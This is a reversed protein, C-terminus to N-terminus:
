EATIDKIINIFISEIEEEDGGKYNEIFKNHIELLYIGYDRIFETFSKENYTLQYIMNKVINQREIDPYKLRMDLYFYCWTTCFGGPDFEKAMNEKVELSQFSYTPCFDLPEYYQKIFDKGMKINFFELIKDDMKAYYSIGGHPEFREMTKFKTDYIVTNAHRDLKGDPDYNKIDLYIYIFRPNKELCQKIGIVGGTLEETKVDYTLGLQYIDIKKMEEKFGKKGVRNYVNKAFKIVNVNLGSCHDKYKHTLYIITTLYVLRSNVNKFKESYEFNYNYIKKIGAIEKMSKFLKINIKEKKHPPIYNEYYRYVIMFIVLLAGIGLTKVIINIKYYKNLYIISFNYIYPKNLTNLINGSLLSYIFLPISDDSLRRLEIGYDIFLKIYDKNLEKFNKLIRNSVGSKSYSIKAGNEFLIRLLEVDDTTELLDKSNVDAGKKILYEVIEKNNNILAIELPSYGEMSEENVNDKNILTKACKNNNNKIAFTLDTDYTNTRIPCIESPYSPIITSETLYPSSLLYPYVLLPLLLSSKKAGDKRKSRKNKSRKKAGDKRKSRKDKSRKDKSRKNKSKM